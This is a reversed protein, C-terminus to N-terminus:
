RVFRLGVGYETYDRQNRFQGHPNVGRYYRLFPSVRGLATGAGTKKIGTVVNVSIRRDESADARPKHYDYVTRWRAETSLYVDWGVGGGFVSEWQMELGIYPDCWNKSRTVPGLASITVADADTGYYSGRFPLVSATVGGRVSRFAGARSEYMGGLDLYQWSVNIREFSQPFRRQGRISYEDGLHTSEHGLFARGALWSTTSLGHRIKFMLGYRYDTNVIPASKDNLDQITHFDIPIWFGFGTAGPKLLDGAEPSSERGFLPLEVGLDVDGIVRPDKHSLAFQTRTSSALLAAVQAERVGAVLPDYYSRHEFTWWQAQAEARGASWVACIAVMFVTLFRNM